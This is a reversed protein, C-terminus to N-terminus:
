ESIQHGTVAAVFTYNLGIGVYVLAPYVGGMYFMSVVFMYTVIRYIHVNRTHICLVNGMCYLLYIYKYRVDVKLLDDVFWAITCIAYHAGIVTVGWTSPLLRNGGDEHAHTTQVHEDSPITAPEATVADCLPAATGVNPIVSTMLGIAIHESEPAPFENTCMDENARYEDLVENACGGEDSVCMREASAGVSAENACVGEDSVCEM